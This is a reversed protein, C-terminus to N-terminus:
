ESVEARIPLFASIIARNVRVFRGRSGVRRILGMSTLENIDRSVTKQQKGAYEEALRPSIHRVENLAIQKDPPFDLVLHKQRRKAPTEQTRFVDHIFNEWTVHMQQERIYDIQDRLEDVFGEIAYKIFDQVPFDGQSTSGLVQYYRDRTKNYHNSLLQAAPMPVGAQILLQFEILRATRGNGDAFPHLWAIYLHALIARLIAVVFGMNRASGPDFDKDIWECFRDMLFPLDEAPAGRYNAVVVSHNRLAGPTVEGSLPLGNLIRGNFESIREPTLVLPKGAIVDDIIENCIELINDVERGLYERSPPLPLDGSVRALVEGESLTNGEISTTGHIGKSLYIRNMKEAIDPRLPVGAIHECKSEAEGLLMWTTYDLRKLQFSFNIWPHTREFLRNM